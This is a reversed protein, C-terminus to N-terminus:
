QRPRQQQQYQRVDKEMYDHMAQYRQEAAAESSYSPFKDLGYQEAQGIAADAPLIQGNWVAPLVYFKGNREATINFVTSRSGDPNDVGGPGYLNQLHYNYLNKEQPTLKLARDVAGMPDHQPAPLREAPTALKKTIGSPDNIADYAHEPLINLPPGITTPGGMPAFGGQPPGGQQIQVLREAKTLNGRADPM